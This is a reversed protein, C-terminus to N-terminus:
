RDTGTKRLLDRLAEELGPFRFAFGHDHLVGPMMRCGELIVTALEGLALRVAFAPVALLTPRHLVRGLVATFEANRVPQPSCLNVPGHIDQNEMLFLLARCLDEEHIWPFWQRGSGLRGAVGLRFGPLMKALAGNNRGLVVATRMTIVRARDRAQAAEKEWAQCVTALFDNGPPATEYKEEDACFGYYGAASGNIMTLPSASREPLAAVINRTSVVRSELIDEKAKATWRSFINAGSLNVVVDHGAVEQQWSGPRSPSGPLIRLPPSAFELLKDPNRALATVRHGSALLHRILTHGIFGTGGAVFVQM